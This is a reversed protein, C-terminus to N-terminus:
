KTLKIWDTGLMHDTYIIIGGMHINSESANKDLGTNFNTRPTDRTGVVLDYNLFWLIMYTDSNYIVSPLTFSHIASIKWLFTSFSHIVIHVTGYLIYQFFFNNVHCGKEMSLFSLQPHSVYASFSILTPVLSIHFHGTYKM